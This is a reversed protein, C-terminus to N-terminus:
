EIASVTPESGIRRAKRLLLPLPVFALLVWSLMYFDDLFAIMLSQRGMQGSIAALTGTDSASLADSMGALDMSSSTTTIHSALDSYSVQQNRNLMTVVVSIGISGGLSRFLAMLSSGDPRLNPPLTAFAMLNMPAVVLGFGLGQIFAALLIPHADMVISWSTMYWMGSAAILYGTAMVYRSDVRKILQGALLSTIMVGIGRPAMMLGTDIVPYGYITQFMMPLVSSLGVVALGMVSMFGLSVVFNGNTWLERRFLPTRTDITHLVFVAFACLAVLLEIIIEWSNFWDKNEGRDFVLQLSALALSIMAFGFLDLPRRDIERSPLLWWLLVLAPIGFPLNVYFIWRWNLNEVIFGGITPGSIPAVM